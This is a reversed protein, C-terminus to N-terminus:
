RVFTIVKPMRLASQGENVQAETITIRGTEVLEDLLRVLQRQHTMPVKNDVLVKYLENSKIQGYQKVWHMIGSLRANKLNVKERSKYVADQVRTGKRLQEKAKKHNAVKELLKDHAKVEDKPAFETMERWADATWSREPYRRGDESVFDPWVIVEHNPTEKWERENKNLRSEIVQMQPPLKGGNLWGSTHSGTPTLIEMDAAFDADYEVGSERVDQEVMDFHEYNGEESELERIASWIDQKVQGDEALLNWQYVLGCKNCYYFGMLSAIYNGGCDCVVPHLHKDEGKVKMIAGNPFSKRNVSKHLLPIYDRHLMKKAADLAKKVLYKDLAASDINANFTANVDYLVILSGAPLKGPQKNVRFTSFDPQNDYVEPYRADVMTLTETSEWSFHDPIPAAWSGGMLQETYKLEEVGCGTLDYVREERVEESKVKHRYAPKLTDIGPISKNEVKQAEEPTIIEFAICKNLYPLTSSM